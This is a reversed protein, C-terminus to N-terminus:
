SGCAGSTLETRGMFSTSLCKTGSGSAGIQLSSGSALFGKATFTLFNGAPGDTLAVGLSAQDLTFRKLPVVGDTQGNSNEDVFVLFEQSGGAPKWDTTNDCQTGNDSPCLTVPANRKLSESRAYQLQASLENLASTVKNRQVMTSYAPVITAMLIVLAALTVMM